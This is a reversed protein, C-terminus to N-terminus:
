GGKIESNFSYKWELADRIFKRITAADIKVRNNNIDTLWIHSADSVDLYMLMRSMKDFYMYNIDFEHIDIKVTRKSFL